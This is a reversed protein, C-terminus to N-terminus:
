IVSQSQQQSKQNTQLLSTSRDDTLWIEASEHNSFSRWPLARNRMVLEMAKWNGMWAEDSNVWALRFPLLRSAIPGCAARYVAAVSDPVTLNNLDIMIREYKCQRCEENIRSLLKNWDKMSLDVGEVPLYIYEEHSNNATLIKFNM